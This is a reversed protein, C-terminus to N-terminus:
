PSFASRLADEGLEDLVAFGLSYAREQPDGDSAKLAEIEDALAARKDPGLASLYRDLRDRAADFGIGMLVQKVAAVRREAAELDAAPAAAPLAAPVLKFREKDKFLEEVLKDGLFDLLVFGLDYSKLQSDLGADQQIRVLSAGLDNREKLSLNQMSGTLMTKAYPLALAFDVGDMVKHVLQKRDVARRRDIQRDVVALFQDVVYGPGLAVETNGVRATIVRARIVVAAGLGAGVATEFPGLARDTPAVERLVCYAVVGLAGNLLLYIWAWPERAVTKFPEDRYRSILEVFAAFIALGFALLPWAIVVLV